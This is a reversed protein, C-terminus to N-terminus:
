VGYKKALKVSKDLTDDNVTFAAHLGVLGKVLESPKSKLSSLFRENEELGEKGREYRDSTGM